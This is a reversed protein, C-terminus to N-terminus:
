THWFKYSELIDDVEAKSAAVFVEFNEDKMKKITTKQLKSLVGTENKVEVFFTVDAKPFICVRDPLGENGMGQIKICRGKLKKVEDVLYREIEKERM